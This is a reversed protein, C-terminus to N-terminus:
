GLLDKSFIAVPAGFCHGHQSATPFVLGGKPVLFPANYILVLKLFVMWAPIGSLLGGVLGLGANEQLVAQHDVM